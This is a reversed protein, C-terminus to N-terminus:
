TIWFALALKMVVEDGSIYGDQERKGTQNRM